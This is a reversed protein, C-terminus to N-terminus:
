KYVMFFFCAPVKYSGDTVELTLEEGETVTTDISQLIESGNTILDQIGTGKATKVSNSTSRSFAYYYITVDGSKPAILSSSTSINGSTSYTNYGLSSFHFEADKDYTMFFFCYPCVYTGKKATLTLIEGKTVTTDIYSIEAGETALDQLGSAVGTRTLDGRNWVFAFYYIRVDGTKPVTLTTTVSAPSTAGHSSIEPLAYYIQSHYGSEMYAINDAGNGTILEGNVWATKGESINDATATAGKTAEQLIKGINTVITEDTDDETTAVGAKKIAEVVNKRFESNYQVRGNNTSGGIINDMENTFQGLLLKENEAAEVYNKGALQSEIDARLKDLEDKKNETNSM